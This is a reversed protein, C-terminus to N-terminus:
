TPPAAANPASGSKPNLPPRPRLRLARLSRLSGLASQVRLRTNGGGNGLAEAVNLAVGNLARRVQSALDRDRKAIADVLPRAQEVLHLVCDLLLQHSPSHM